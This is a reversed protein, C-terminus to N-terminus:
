ISPTATAPAPAPATGSNPLVLIECGGLLIYPLMVMIVLEINDGEMALLVTTLSMLVWIFAIKSYAIMSKMFPLADGVFTPLTSMTPIVKQPIAALIIYFPISLFMIWEISKIFRLMTTTSPPKTYIEKLDDNINRMFLKIKETTSTSKKKLDCNYEKMKNLINKGTFLKKIPQAIGDEIDNVVDGVATFRERISSYSLLNNISKRNSINTFQESVAATSMNVSSTDPTGINSNFGETGGLKLLKDCEQIRQLDTYINKTCIKGDKYTGDVECIIIDGLLIKLACALFWMIVLWTKASAPGFCTIVESNNTIALLLMYFGTLLYILIEFLLFQAQSGFIKDKVLDLHLFNKIVHKFPTVVTMVKLILILIIYAINRSSDVIIHNAITSNKIFMLNRITDTFNLSFLIAFTYFFFVNINNIGFYVMMNTKYDDMFTKFLDKSNYIDDKLDKFLAMNNKLFGIKDPEMYITRLVSADSISEDEILTNQSKVDYIVNGPLMVKIVKGTADKIVNVIKIDKSKKLSSFILTVPEVSDLWYKCMKMKMKDKNSMSERDKLNGSADLGEACNIIESTNDRFFMLYGLGLCIAGIYLSIVTIIIQPLALLGGGLVIALAPLIVFYVVSILILIILWNNKFFTGWSTFFGIWGGQTFPVGKEEQDAAADSDSAEAENGSVAEESADQFVMVESLIKVPNFIDNALKDNIIKYTDITYEQILEMIDIVLTPIEKLFKKVKSLSFKELNLNNSIESKFIMVHMVMMIALITQILLMQECSTM